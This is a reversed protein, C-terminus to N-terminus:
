KILIKLKIKLSKKYICNLEFKCGIARMYIYIKKYICNLEFKCGIARM